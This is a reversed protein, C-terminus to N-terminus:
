CPGQTKACPGNKGKKFASRPRRRSPRSSKERLIQNHREWEAVPDNDETLRVARLIEEWLKEVATSTREGPFVKKAWQKSPAAVITWQYKNEMEDSIPKLVKSVAISSKQLKTPNVGKLGDPDASAIAIM